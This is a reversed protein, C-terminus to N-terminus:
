PGKQIVKQSSQTTTNLIPVTASLYEFIKTDLTLSLNFSEKGTKSMSSDLLNVNKVYENKEFVALQRSFPENGDSEGSLEVSGSKRNMSFRKYWVNQLTHNQIFLFVNSALEHNKLIGLYDSIKKQYTIVQDEEDKQQDTGVTELAMIKEQIEQRQLVDKIIFIVYCLVTAVLLSIAFYFIIDVWWFKKNKLQSIISLDM